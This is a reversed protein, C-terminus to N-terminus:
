KAEQAKVWEDYKKNVDREVFSLQKESVSTLSRKGKVEKGDKDTWKTIDELLDGAALKDGGAMEMIKRGIEAKKDKTEKSDTNGGQTGAGYSVGKENAIKDLDLGAARMDAETPNLGLASMVGRRIASTHAKLTVNVLSVESLPKYKGGQMGLLKDRTSCIGKETVEIGRWTAVVPVIVLIYEGQDDKMHQQTALGDQNVSVGFADKLKKAGTHELFFKSGLKCWDNENTLKLALAKIKNQFEIALEARELMREMEERTYPTVTVANGIPAQPVPQTAVVEATYVEQDQNVDGGEKTQDNGEVIYPM